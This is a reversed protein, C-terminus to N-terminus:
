FNGKTTDSAYPIKLVFKLILIGGRMIKCFPVCRLETTTIVMMDYILDKNKEIVMKLTMVAVMVSWFM